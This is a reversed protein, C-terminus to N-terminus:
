FNYVDKCGIVVYSISHVADGNFLFTFVTIGRNELQLREELVVRLRLNGMVERRSCRDTQSLFFSTYAFIPEYISFCTNIQADRIRSFDYVSQEYVSPINNLNRTIALSNNQITCLTEFKDTGYLYENPICSYDTKNKNCAGSPHGGKTSSKAPCGTNGVCRGSLMTFTMPPDYV